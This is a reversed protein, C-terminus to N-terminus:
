HSVAIKAAEIIPPPETWWVNKNNRPNSVSAYRSGMRSVTATFHVYGTLKCDTPDQFMNLMHLM